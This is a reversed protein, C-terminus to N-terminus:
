RIPATGIFAFSDDTFPESFGILYWNLGTWMAIQLDSEGFRRVRYYGRERLRLVDDEANHRLATKM